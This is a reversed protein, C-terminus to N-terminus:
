QYIMLLVKTHSLYTAMDMLPYHLCIPMNPKPGQSFIVFPWFYINTPNRSPKWCIAMHRTVRIFVKVGLNEIRCKQFFVFANPTQLINCKGHGKAKCSYKKNFRRMTSYVRCEHECNLIRYNVSLFLTSLTCTINRNLSTVLKSYM